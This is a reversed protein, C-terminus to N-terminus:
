LIDGNWLQSLFVRFPLIWIDKSADITIKRHNEENCVVYSKSLHQEEMLVIIGNLETKRVEKSIKVEIAVDAESIVFDM